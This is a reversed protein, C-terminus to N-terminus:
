AYGTDYEGRLIQFMNISYSPKNKFTSNWPLQHGTNKDLLGLLSSLLLSILFLM